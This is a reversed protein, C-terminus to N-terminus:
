RGIWGLFIPGRHLDLSLLVFHAIASFELGFIATKLISAWRFSKNLMLATGLVPLAAFSLVAAPSQEFVLQSLPWPMVHWPLSWRTALFTSWLFSGVLPTSLAYALEPWHRQMDTLAVYVIAFAVQRWFWKRSRGAHFEEILDGTLANNTVPSSLRELLWVGLRPPHSKGTKM